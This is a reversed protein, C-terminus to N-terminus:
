NSKTYYNDTKFDKAEAPRRANDFSVLTFYTLLSLYPLRVYSVQCGLAQRM